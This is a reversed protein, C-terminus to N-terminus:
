TDKMEDRWSFHPGCCPAFRQTTKGIRILDCAKLETPNLVPKTGLRVLGAKKGQQLYFLRTEEDYVVYAHEERSISDDGFNLSIRQNPDRGVSNMGVYVGCYGGRGPGKVIVLWGAIPEVEAENTGSPILLRTRPQGVSDAAAHSAKPASAGQDGALRTRGIVAGPPPGSREGLSKAPRSSPVEKLLRVMKSRMQFSKGETGTGDGDLLAIPTNVKVGETGDPVLLKAVKGKDVAEIEISAKETEIEAVVDGPNVQQGEEVLWRVLKGTKMEPSLTPMLIKISM